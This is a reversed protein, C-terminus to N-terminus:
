SLNLLGKVTAWWGALMFCPWRYGWKHCPPLFLSSVATKCKGRYGGAELLQLLNTLHNALQWSDGNESFPPNDRFFVFLNIGLIRIEVFLLVIM